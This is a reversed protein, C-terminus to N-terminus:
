IFFTTTIYDSILILICSLVVASTTASSVAEPGVSDTRMHAFFGKYCCVNAVLLAFIISKIFGSLIDKFMVSSQVRYLYIGGNLDLLTVGTFYGGFIGVVDFVATLLPFVILCALFRPSVLFGYPNIDMVELADLQESIRMVGIEATIASGARGTIMIACLVPGLERILSLSVLTGLIGESGVTKLAYYGQLGLVMGTFLGILAILFISNSGIFHMQHLVKFFQKGSFMQRLGVAMFVSMAGIERILLLFYDIIFCPISLIIKVIAFM